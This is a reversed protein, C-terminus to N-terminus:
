PSYPKFRRLNVERTAQKPALNHQSGQGVEEVRADLVLLLLKLSDLHNKKRDRFPGKARCTKLRLFRLLLLQGCVVTLEAFSALLASLFCIQAHIFRLNDLVPRRKAM